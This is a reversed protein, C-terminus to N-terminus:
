AWRQEQAALWAQVSSRRYFVRRGLRTIPPGKRQLRWRVATLPTIDLEVALEDTDLFDGLVGARTQEAGGANQNADPTKQRHGRRKRVYGKKDNSPM